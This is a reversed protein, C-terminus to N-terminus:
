LVCGCGSVCVWACVSESMCVGVYKCVRLIDFYVSACGWERVCMCARVGVCRAREADSMTLASPFLEDPPQASASPPTRGTVDSLQTELTPRGDARCCIM